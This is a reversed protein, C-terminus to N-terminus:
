NLRGPRSPDLAAAPVFEVQTVHILGCIKIVTAVASDARVRVRVDRYAQDFLASVGASDLYTVACLDIVMSRAQAAESELAARLEAVNSLDIEGFLVIERSLTREIRLQPQATKTAPDQSDRASETSISGAQGPDNSIAQSNMRRIEKVLEVTTGTPGTHIDMHEVLNAMMLRGRGRRGSQARATDPEKWVGRDAVVVRVLADECTVRIWAAPDADTPQAGSHEVANSCAEGAAMLILHLDPEPVGARHLWGRLRDRTLALGSGGVTPDIPACFTAPSM